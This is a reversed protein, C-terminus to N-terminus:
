PSPTSDGSDRLVRDLIGMMINRYVKELLPNSKILQMTKYLRAGNEADIEVERSVGKADVMVLIYRVNGLEDEVKSIDHMQATSVDFPQDAQDAVPASARSGFTAGFYAAMEDVSKKTSNRKLEKGLQELRDLNEEDGRGEAQHMQGRIRNIMQTRGFGKSEPPSTSPEAILVSTQEDDRQHDFDSDLMILSQEPRPPRIDDNIAMFVLTSFLSGHLMISM